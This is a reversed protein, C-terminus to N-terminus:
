AAARAGFPVGLEARFVRLWNEGLIARIEGEPVGREVLAATVLPLGAPGGLGPIAQKLSVGETVLDGVYTELAYEQIFDPGLGVHESGAVSAVHLVHDVLREVTPDVPDVFGAMFNVGVVGGTAAIGRLREDTLNRHHQVLSFASSHSAIVPRTARELVDDVGSASLHSVDMLVGLEEFLALAEVGARTLGSGTADEASGDAFATRGMHTFSVMRVGLRFMTELLGVEGALSGCGELSLVLAIRGKALAADVDAGTLCIAVDDPNGEAVRHGAEVTLLHERLDDRGTYSALVQVDVGGARLQPLWQSRFYAAQEARPRRVVLGLLDNHTDVVVADEHLTRV